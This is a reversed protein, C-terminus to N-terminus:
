RYGPCLTISATDRGEADKVITWTEGVKRLPYRVSSDDCARARWAANQVQTRSRFTCILVGGDDAGFWQLSVGEGLHSLGAADLMRDHELPAESLKKWVATDVLCDDDFVQRRPLPAACAAVVAFFAILVAAKIPQRKM